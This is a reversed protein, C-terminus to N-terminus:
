EYKVENFICCQLFVDGTIADTNEELIRSFQRPSIKAMIELGNKIKNLNLYYTKNDEKDRIKIKGGKFLVAHIYNYSHCWQPLEEFNVKFTNDTISEIYEAWYHSGCSSEFASCLLNAISGKDINLKIKM